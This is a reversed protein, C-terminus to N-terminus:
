AARYLYSIIHVVCYVLVHPEVEIIRSCRVGM